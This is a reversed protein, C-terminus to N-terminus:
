EAEWSDIKLYTDIIEIFSLYQEQSLIQKAQLFSLALMKQAAIKCSDQMFYEIPQNLERQIGTLSKITASKRGLEIQGLHSEHIGAKSALEKRSLDASSRAASIRQGLSEKSSPEKGMHNSLIRLAIKNANSISSISCGPYKDIALPSEDNEELLQSPTVWLIDAIRTLLEISPIERGGEIEQIYKESVNVLEALAEQTMSRVVRYKKIREGLFDVLYM